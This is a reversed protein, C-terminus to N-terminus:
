YDKPNEKMDEIAANAIIRQDMNSSATEPAKESEPIDNQNAHPTAMEEQISGLTKLQTKTDKKIGISRLSAYHSKIQDLLSTNSTENQLIAPSMELKQSSPDVKMREDWEGSTPSAFWETSPLSPLPLVKSQESRLIETPSQQLGPVAM